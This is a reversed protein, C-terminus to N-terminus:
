ESWGYGCNPCVIERETYPAQLNTEVATVDPIAREEEESWARDTLTSLKDDAAGADYHVPDRADAPLPVEIEWDHFLGSLDLGAGIDEQVVAFDLNINLDPVRNDAYALKRAKGADESLDLDERMHVILQHGSSRVVIGQAIGNALAELHTKNGGIIRGHKDVVISRGAGLERLSAGLAGMGRETGVNANHDDQQLTSLDIIEVPKQEHDDDTKSM